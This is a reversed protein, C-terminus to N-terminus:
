KPERILWVAVGGGILVAFILIGILLSSSSNSTPVEDLIVTPTAAITTSSSTPLVTLAPLDTPTVTAPGTPILTPPAPQTAGRKVLLKQGQYVVLDDGLNNFAQIQKITTRYEIAVSWLTQGYQLVHYVNGDPQATNVVVPVIYQSVVSGASDPASTLAVVASDQMEGSGTAAACDVAYYYRNSGQSVGAGIHTYSATIITAMHISDQWALPVGNWVLPDGSSLINESRLGGATLDGALPFGLSILQQTYTVGGPRTHTVQGTAAMYDAQSQASQMLATHVTLPSLGYSVRVGNIADILQSPSTITTQRPQHFLADATSPPLINWTLFFM